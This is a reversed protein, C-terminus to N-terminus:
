ASCTPLGSSCGPRAAVPMSIVEAQGAPPRYVELFEGVSPQSTTPLKRARSLMPYFQETTLDVGDRYGKEEFHLDGMLAVRM